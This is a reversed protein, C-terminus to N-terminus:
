NSRGKAAARARDGMAVIGKGIKEAGKAIFSGKAVDKGLTGDTAQFEKWKDKM